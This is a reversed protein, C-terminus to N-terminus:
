KRAATTTRLQDFLNFVFTVHTNAATDGSVPPALAVRLGDPHLAYLRHGTLEPLFTTPGELWPRPPDPRFTGNDVRYRVVNLSHRYDIARQTYVLEHRARAWSPAVGWAVAV